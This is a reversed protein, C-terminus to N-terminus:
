NLVIDDAGNNSGSNRGTYQNAAAASTSEVTEECSAETYSSYVQKKTAEEMVMISKLREVEQQLKHKEKSVLEFDLKLADYLHQLKKAKWRARRNQFWVAVQRPQLALDRALKMKRDPDLKREEEFSSELSELQKTTLRRKM